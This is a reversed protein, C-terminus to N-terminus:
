GGLRKLLEQAVARGQAIAPGANLSFGGKVTKLGMQAGYSAVAMNNIKLNIRNAVYATGLGIAATAVAGKILQRKTDRGADGRLEKYADARTVGKERVRYELRRARSSSYLIKNRRFERKEEKTQPKFKYKGAQKYEKGSGIGVGYRREGAPTLSGDPNQYRRVGWKMGLIGHHVLYDNM